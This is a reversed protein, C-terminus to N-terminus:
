KEDAVEEGQTLAIFVEQMSPFREEVAEIEVQGMLAKLLDDIKNVGRMKVTAEFRMEGIEKKHILEFNTWLANAFSIMNGKFRITFEGKKQAERLNWISDEAIKKSQHILAARDCIEEVSRMNHTSLIVTKGQEKFSKLENLILEVNVPDFGSLPEDLILVDPEHLVSAIFQIKQAMGKSLEEIRKRSWDQVQFKELWFLSNRKADAKNLGRIQALFILQDLVQMSKYLGREEPLYGIFRLHDETMLKGDFRITGKEQQIIQNIIRILTTKGAGNPGLLGFIEGKNIQMSVADLAFKRNFSKTIETVTLM